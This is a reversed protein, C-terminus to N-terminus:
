DKSGIALRFYEPDPKQGAWTWWPGSIRADYPFDLNKLANRLAMAVRPPHKPDDVGITLGPPAIEDIRKNGVVQINADSVYLRSPIWHLRTFVKEFDDGFRAAESNALKGWIQISKVHYAALEKVLQNQEDSSLFRQGASRKVQELNIQLKINDQEIKAARANATGARELAVATERKAEDLVFGEFVAIQNDASFVFVECLIEGALGVVIFVFGVVGWFPVWTREEKKEFNEFYKPFFTRHWLHTPLWKKFEHKVEAYECVVGLLVVAGSAALGWFWCSHWYQLDARMCVEVTDKVCYPAVPLLM